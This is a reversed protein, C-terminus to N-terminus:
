RAGLQYVLWSLLQDSLLRGLSLPEEFDDQITPYYSSRMYKSSHAMESRSSSLLKPEHDTDQTPVGDVACM